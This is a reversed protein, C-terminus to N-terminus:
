APWMIEVHQVGHCPLVEYLIVFFFYEADHECPPDSVSLVSTQVPTELEDPKWFLMESWFLLSYFVVGQNDSVLCFGM